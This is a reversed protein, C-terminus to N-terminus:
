SHFFSSFHSFIYVIDACECVGFHAVRQTSNGLPIAQVKALYGHTNQFVQYKAMKFRLWYLIDFDVWAWTPRVLVRVSLAKHKLNRQTM